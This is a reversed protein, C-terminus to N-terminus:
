EDPPPEVRRAVVIGGEDSVVEFEGDDLLRDMLQEERSGAGHTTTDVVLWEVEAPVHEHDPDEPAVGGVGWNSAIWPNPFTYIQERHSLHPVIYYSAAVAADDPM